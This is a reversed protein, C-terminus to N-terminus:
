KNNERVPTMKPNKDVWRGSYFNKIAIRMENWDSKLQPIRVGMARPYAECFRLAAFIALAEHFEIAFGPVTTTANYAISVMGRDFSCELGAAVSVNSVPYPIITNGIMRYYKPLGATTLFARLNSGKQKLIEEETIPLMETWNGNSDSVRMGRVSLAIASNSPLIYSTQNAVLATTAVPLDTQNRDDFQWGAVKFIDSWIISQGANFARVQDLLPYDTVTLGGLLFLTHSSIDQNHAEGSIQM